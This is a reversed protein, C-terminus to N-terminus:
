LFQVVVLGDATKEFASVGDAQFDRCFRVALFAESCLAEVRRGRHSHWSAGIFEVEVKVNQYIMLTRNGSGSVVKAGM